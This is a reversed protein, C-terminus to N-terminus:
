LTYINWGFARGTGATQKLTFAVSDVSPVPISKKVPDAQVNSFSACFDQAASGGSLVKTKARLEVTDGNALNSM